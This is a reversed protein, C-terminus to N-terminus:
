VRFVESPSAVNGCLHYRRVFASGTSSIEHFGGGAPVLDGASTGNVSTPPSYRTSTSTSAVLFRVPIRRPTSWRKTCCRPPTANDMLGPSPRGPGNTGQQPPTASRRRRQDGVPLGSFTRLDRNACHGIGFQHRSVLQRGSRELHRRQYRRRRQLLDPRLRQRRCRLPTAVRHARGSGWRRVRPHFGVTRNRGTQRVPLQQRYAIGCRTARRRLRPHHAEGRLERGTAVRVRLEGSRRLRGIQNRRTRNPARRLRDAQHQRCVSHPGALMSGLPGLTLVAAAAGRKVLERRSVTRQEFSDVM